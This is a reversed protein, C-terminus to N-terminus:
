YIPISAMTERDMLGSFYNFEGQNHRM